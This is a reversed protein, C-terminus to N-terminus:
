TAIPLLLLLGGKREERLCVPHHGLLRGEETGSTREMDAAARCELVTM